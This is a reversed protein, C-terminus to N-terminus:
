EAGCDEGTEGRAIRSLRVVQSEREVLRNVKMNNNTERVNGRSEENEDGKSEEKEGQGIMMFTM